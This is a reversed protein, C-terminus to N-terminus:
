RPTLTTIRPPPPVKCAALFRRQADTPDTTQVVIGAPGVLTVASLRDLERSVQAWPTGTANEAVRVLLLALWCILVHARIRAELRHFVPRLLLTTKLDRVGREAKLLNKFGLAVQAPTLHPDSTSLLYKGDLKAEAAVKAKDIVLRGTSTQRLWRGLTPHDRLACEARTHGSLEAKLRTKAKASTATRLAATATGRAQDIRTLEAELRTIADDRTAKDKVAEAPNLCVVWRIGPTSEVQVEKVHLHDDVVTYRGQRSLAQAADGAKDRMREGAIWHGGGKRLHALNADSSFGRDVITIVRGLKWDRMGDRVQPLVSTDTTNGPWCWVRVPIGEATVALGIVIQPLDSRHDKSHGYRRFGPEGDVDPDPVETEFYTSTTDFLLVDVELNLLNACAFFVAEQVQATADAEVLLDMVRYAQDDSFEVLGPIAVDRAAWETAALKSCPDLARNAVLAFLVREVDTTFRRAGLLERLATDIGLQRWLGDLLWVGGASRSETIRLGADGPAAHETYPDPDGLHRSLSSILRRLGDHDLADARGLNCLVKTRVVGDVRYNHALSLYEVVSGDRNTRRTTRLYM